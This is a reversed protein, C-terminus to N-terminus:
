RRSRIGRLVGPLNSELVSSISAGCVGSITVLTSFRESHRSRLHDGVLLSAALKFIISGILSGHTHNM